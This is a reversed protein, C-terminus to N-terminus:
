WNASPQDFFTLSLFLLLHPPPGRFFFDPSSHHLFFHFPRPPNRVHRSKQTPELLFKKRPPHRPSPKRPPLSTHSHTLSTITNKDNSWSSNARQIQARNPTRNPTQTRIKHRLVKRDGSAYCTHQLPAHVICCPFALMSTGGPWVIRTGVTIGIFVTRPAVPKLLLVAALRAPRAQVVMPEVGWLHFACRPTVVGEATRPFALSRTMM